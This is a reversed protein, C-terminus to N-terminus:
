RSDVEHTEIRRQTAGRMALANAAGIRAPSTRM